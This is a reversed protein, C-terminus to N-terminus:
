GPMIAHAKLGLVPSVSSSLKTLEPDVQDGTLELDGPPALLCQNLFLVFCFVERSLGSDQNEQM